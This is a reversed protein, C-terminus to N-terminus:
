VLMDAVVRPPAGTLNDGFTQIDLGFARTLLTFYVDRLALPAASPFSLYQNTKLMSGGGILLLPLRAASHNSGHMCSGYFVVTNDLMSGDGERFSALKQCLESVKSAYWWNITCWTPNNLPGSQGAGHVDRCLVGPGPTSQEAGFVREQLHDYVFESREDDLMFSIVRTADCQFALAILETMLDAHQGRDYGDQGNILGVHASLTPRPPASCASQNVIRRETERISTLYQDLIARDVASLKGDLARSSDLVADLVSQDVRHEVPRPSLPAAFLQDFLAQPDILKYLPKTESFWSISRSLSCPQGDCYSDTTSLGVQLSPLATELPRAQALLQDVSIGNVEAPTGSFLPDLRRRVQQADVCTLFGGSLRGHSPEVSPNADVNFPSANEVNDLVILQQKLPAFPELVSSLKWDSRSAALPFWLEPAGCPFSIPLFRKPSPAAQGHASRPALSELWPLAIVVGAGRLLARRNWGKV